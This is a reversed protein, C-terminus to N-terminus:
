TGQSMGDLTTAQSFAVTSEDLSLQDYQRVLNELTSMHAEQDRKVIAMPFGSRAYKPALTVDNNEEDWDIYGKLAELDEIALRNRLLRAVISAIHAHQSQDYLGKLCLILTSRLTELRDDGETGVPGGDMGEITLNALISLFYTLYPDMYDFGQRVYYLRIVTDLCRLAYSVTESDKTPPHEHECSTADNEPSLQMQSLKLLLVCYEMHMKLQCPLVTRKPTLAEPLQSYWEDLKCHFGVIECSTLSRIATTGEFMICAMDNAIQRLGTIARFVYGHSAPILTESTPYKAWIEGYWSPDEAPDPLPTSPPDRILPAQFFHLGQFAQWRYLCWATFDRATKTKGKKQRAPQFLTMDRAMAVAQILYSLGINDMGKISYVVHLIMAAQLTTLMTKKAEAEWLRKAEALFQNGLIEPRWSQEYNTAARYSHCAEALVTNVLLPSCFRRDGDRMAQLFIDKQMTPFTLYDHLLYSHLLARLIDDDKCVSTWRSLILGSTRIEVVQAAHYPMMYASPDRGVALPNPPSISREGRGQFGTPYTVSPLYPNDLISLGLPMSALYPSDYKFRTEPGLAGQLLPDGHQAHRVVTDIEAGGRLRRVMDSSQREPLSRVLDFLEKYSNNQEQVQDYKRKLAQTNAEASAIDKYECVLDRGACSDCKPRTATCKRKSRRCAECALRVYNIRPPLSVLPTDRGAGVAAAARSRYSHSSPEFAPLLKRFKNPAVSTSDAVDQADQAERPALQQM